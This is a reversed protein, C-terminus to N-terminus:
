KSIVAEYFQNFSDCVPSQYLGEFDELSLYSCFVEIDKKHKDYPINQLAYINQLKECPHFFETEPNVKELDIQLKEKIFEITLAPHIKEFVHHLALFWAETEM